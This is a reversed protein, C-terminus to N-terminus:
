LLVWRQLVQCVHMDISSCIGHGLICQESAKAYSHACVTLLLNCNSLLASAVELLAIQQGVLVSAPELTSLVM